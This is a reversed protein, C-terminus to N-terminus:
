MALRSHSAGGGRPACRTVRTTLAAARAARPSYRAAPSHCATCLRYPRAPVAPNHRRQLRYLRLSDDDHHDAAPPVPTVCATCGMHGVALQCSLPAMGPRKCPCLSAQLQAAPMHPSTGVYVAASLSLPKGSARTHTGMPAAPALGPSQQLQLAVM